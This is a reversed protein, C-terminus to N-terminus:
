SVAYNGRCKRIEIFSEFVDLSNCTLSFTAALVNSVQMVIMHM